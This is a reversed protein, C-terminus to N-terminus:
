NSITFLCIGRSLLIEDCISEKGLLHWEGNLVFSSTDGEGNENIMDLNLQFPLWNKTNIANNITNTVRPSFCDGSGPDWYISFTGMPVQFYGKHVRFYGPCVRFYGPRPHPFPNPTNKTEDM